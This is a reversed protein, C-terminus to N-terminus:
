GTSSDENKHKEAGVTEHNCTSTVFTNYRSYKSTYHDKSPHELLNYIRSFTSMISNYADPRPKKSYAIM